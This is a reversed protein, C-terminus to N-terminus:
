VFLNLSFVIATKSPLNQEMLRGSRLPKLLDPLISFYKKVIHKALIQFLIKRRTAFLKRYLHM